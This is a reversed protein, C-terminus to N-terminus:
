TIKVLTAGTVKIIKKSFFNRPMAMPSASSTCGAHPVPWGWHPQSRAPMQVVQPGCPDHCGARQLGVQAEHWQLLGSSGPQQTQWTGSANTQCYFGATEWIPINDRKASSSNQHTSHAIRNIVHPASVIIFTPLVALLGITVLSMEVRWDKKTPPCSVRASPTRKHGFQWLVARPAAGRSRTM